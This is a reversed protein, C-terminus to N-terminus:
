HKVVPELRTGSASVIKLYYTGVPYGSMDFVHRKGTKAVTELVKGNADILSVAKWESAAEITVQSSAPNPFIDLKESSVKGSEFEKVKEQIESETYEGPHGLDLMRSNSIYVIRSSDVSDCVGSAFHMSHIMVYYQNTVLTPAPSTSNIAFTSGAGTSTYLGRVLTFPTGSSNSTYLGWTHIVGTVGETSVGSFNTLTSGSTGLGTINFEPDLSPYVYVTYSTTIEECGCWATATITVEKPASSITGWSTITISGNAGTTYTVDSPSVSTVGPSTGNTSLIYKTPTAEDCIVKDGIIEINCCDNGTKYISTNDLWGTTRRASSGRAYTGHNLFSLGSVTEPVDFCFNGVLTTRGTDSFLLLEGMENGFIQLRAYYTTGYTIPITGTNTVMVGNDYVEVEVRSGTSVSGGTSWAKVGIVDMPEQALCTVMPVAMDPNLNQSSLAALWAGIGTTVPNSINFEFDMNFQRDYLTGLPTSIRNEQAGAVNNFNVRNTSIAVSGNIPGPFFVCGGLPTIVQTETTWGAATSYNFTQAYAGQGSLILLAALIIKKM